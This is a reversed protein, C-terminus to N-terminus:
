GGDAPACARAHPRDAVAALVLGLVVWIHPLNYQSFTLLQSWVGVAAAWCVVLRVGDQGADPTASRVRSGVRGCLGWAARAAVALGVLGTECLIMLPFNNVVPWTFQSQLGRADVLIPFHWGFQGWGVGVLPSLRFARWAAQMSYWRTLNSWDHSSFSQALRRWPLAAASEPWLGAAAGSLTLFGLIGVAWPRVRRASWGRRHCTGGAVALGVLGALWAGRSWTFVLLLLLGGLLVNRVRGRWGALLVLPIAMLLYNGLYLPECATGRLRPVAQMRDGLYLDRSGALIAPNSTFVADLSDFWPLAGAYACAQAIGYVLQLAAGLGVLRATWRWRDDGRTWWAPWAVFVMMVLLQVVQRFFRPLTQSLPEPAPAVWLGAVSLLVAGLVAAAAWTGGAGSWARPTRWHLPATGRRFRSAALLLTAVALLAWSPQLGAGLDRGTALSLVDLGIWPLTVLSAGYFIRASKLLM